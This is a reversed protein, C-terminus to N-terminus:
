IEGRKVMNIPWNAELGLVAIIGLYVGFWKGVTSHSMVVRTWRRTGIYGGAFVMSELVSIMNNSVGFHCFVGENPGSGTSTLYDIGHNMAKSIIGSMTIDFLMQSAVCNSWVLVGAANSIAHQMRIHYASTTSIWASNTFHGVHILFTVTEYGQKDVTVGTYSLADRKDDPELVTFFRFNSYGDRVGGM